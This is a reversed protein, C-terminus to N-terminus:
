MHTPGILVAIEFLSASGGGTEAADDLGGGDVGSGTCPVVESGLSEASVSTVTLPLTSGLRPHGGLNLPHPSLPDQTTQESLVPFRALNVLM